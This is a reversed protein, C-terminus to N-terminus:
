DRADVEAQIEERENASLEQVSTKGAKRLGGHIQEHEGPSLVQAKEVDAFKKFSM